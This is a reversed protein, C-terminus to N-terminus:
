CYSSWHYCTQLFHFVTDQSKKHAHRMQGQLSGFINGASSSSDPSDDELDDAGESIGRGRRKRTETQKGKISGKLTQATLQSMDQEPEGIGM